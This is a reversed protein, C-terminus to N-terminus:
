QSLFENLYDEPKKGSYDDYNWFMYRALALLQESRKLDSTEQNFREIREKGKM